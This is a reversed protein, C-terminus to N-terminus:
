SLDLSLLSHYWCHDVHIVLPIRSGLAVTLVTAIIVSSGKLCCSDILDIPRWIRSVMGSSRLYRRMGQRVLCFSGRTYKVVGVTWAGVCDVVLGRGIADVLVGVNSDFGIEATIASLMSLVDGRPSDM